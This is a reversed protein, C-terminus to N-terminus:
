LVSVKLYCRCAWVPEDMHFLVSGIGCYAFASDPHNYALNIKRAKMYSDLAQEDRGCSEYVSGLQLEFYLEYEPRMTDTNLYNRWDTKAQEFTHIAM